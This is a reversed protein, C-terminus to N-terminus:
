GIACPRGMMKAFVQWSRRAVEIAPAATQESRSLHFAAEDISYVKALPLHREIEAMLLRHVAAYRDHRAPRM